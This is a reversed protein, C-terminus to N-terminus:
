SVYPIGYYNFPHQYLLYFNRGAIGLQDSRKMKGVSNNAIKLYNNSVSSQSVVNKIITYLIVSKIFLLFM